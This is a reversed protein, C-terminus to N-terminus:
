KSRSKNGKTKGKTKGKKGGKSKKEQTSNTSTPATMEQDIWDLDSNAPDVSATTTSREVAQRMSERMQEASVTLCMSLWYQFQEEDVPEELQWELWREPKNDAWGVWRNFKQLGPQCSQNHILRNPWRRTIKNKQMYTLGLFGREFISRVDLTKDQELLQFGFFRPDYLFPFVQQTFTWPLLDRLYYFMKGYVDNNAPFDKATYDLLEMPWESLPEATAGQPYAVGDRFFMPNPVNFDKRPHGYPLLLGDARWRLLGLARSRTMRATAERYPQINEQRDGVRVLTEDALSISQKGNLARKLGNSQETSLNGTLKVNRQEWVFTQREGSAHEPFAASSLSPVLDKQLDDM